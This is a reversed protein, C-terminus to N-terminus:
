VTGTTDKKRMSMYEEIERDLEEKTKKNNRKIFGNIRKQAFHQGYSKTIIGSPRKATQEIQKKYLHGQNSPVHKEEIWLKMEKGGFILGKCRRVMAQAHRLKLTVEATCLSEGYRDFHVRINSPKYHAFLENLERQTMQKGLNSVHVKVLHDDKHTNNFRRNYHSSKNHINDRNGRDYHRPGCEPEIRPWVDRLRGRCHQWQERRYWRRGASMRHGNKKRDAIRQDSSKDM